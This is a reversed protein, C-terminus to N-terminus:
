ENIRISDVDLEIATMRGFIEVEASVRDGKGLLSRITATFSAFPGHTVTAKRDVWWDDKGDDQKAVRKAVRLRLKKMLEDPMLFPKGDRGMLHSIRSASLVGAYAEMTPVVRVFVYGRFLPRPIKKAAIGRRPRLLKMEVPCWSEIGWETLEEEIRLELGPRCTAVIWRALRDFGAVDKTAMAILNRGARREADAMVRGDRGAM